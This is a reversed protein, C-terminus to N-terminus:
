GYKMKLKYHRQRSKSSKNKVYEKNYKDSLARRRQKYNFSDKDIGSPKYKGRKKPSFPDSGLGVLGKPSKINRFPDRGKKFWPKVSSFLGSKNRKKIKKKKKKESFSDRYQASYEPVSLFLFLGLFSIILIRM